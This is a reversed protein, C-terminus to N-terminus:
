RGKIRDMLVVFSDDANERERVEEVYIGEKLPTIIFRFVFDEPEIAQEKLAGYRVDSLQLKGDPLTMITYYDDTFWKLIEIEKESEFEKILQHDKKLQYFSVTPSTDFLSYMGLHFVDEGEAVGQWLINNFISPSTRFRQYSINQAQLSAEFIKDIRQKNFVTFLLYASSLGIGLYAFLRRSKKTRYICAAIVLCIIFPITYIPDAVSITNFAVRYDSFPAFLQTGFATFADLLPHTFISWFFLKVWDSYEVDVNELPQQLYNTWLRYLAYLFLGGTIGMTVYSKGGVLVVPILNAIFLVGVLFLAWFVFGLWKFGKQQYLGSKYFRDTLWAFLFPTTVAFFISHSIGRHFALADIDNMIFNGLIDLDPITGGVAGWLMARNGIKKGLVLEGCAAGLTIQTLSDM